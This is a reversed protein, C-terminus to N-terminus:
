LGYTYIHLDHRDDGASFQGEVRTELRFGVRQVIDAKEADCAALCARVFRAGATEAAGIAARLLGDAGELYSPAVLFDVVPAAAQGARDFYTLTSAGMLRGARTELVWLGGGREETNVMMSPLISGCRTHEIAPHGYLAELYDKVFWACPRAYLWAIRPADGWHGPRTTAPGHWAFYEGDVDDSNVTDSLYRMVHGNYDEFGYRQYISRAIPNGTGLWAYRGDEMWFDDMMREMLLSCLGMGRFAPDTIVYSVLGVERYARARQMAAHAAPTAGIWISYSRDANAGALQGALMRTLYVTEVRSIWPDHPRVIMEWLSSVTDPAGAGDPEYRDVRALEGTKLRLEERTLM